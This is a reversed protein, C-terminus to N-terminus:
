HIIRSGECMFVPIHSALELIEADDDCFGFCKRVDLYVLKKCGQLIIVLAEREFFTYPIDLYELRPLSAVIASAVYKRIGARPASLWIFNNCHLGIQPLVSKMYFLGVHFVADLGKLRPCRCIM